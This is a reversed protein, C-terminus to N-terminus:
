PPSDRPMLARVPVKACQLCMCEGDCRECVYCSAGFPLVKSCTDCFVESQHKCDQSVCYGCKVSFDQVRHGKGCSPTRAAM